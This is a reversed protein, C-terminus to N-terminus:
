SMGLVLDVVFCGRVHPHASDRCHNLVADSNCGADQLADALIPMASFERSEYMQRALTQATDTRWEPNFKVPRYPDGAVDRLLPVSHVGRPVPPVLNAPWGLSRTLEALVSFRRATLRIHEDAGEPKAFGVRALEEEYRALEAAPLQWPPQHRARVESLWATNWIRNGLGLLPTRWDSQDGLADIRREAYEVVSRCVRPLDDWAQRCLAVVYLVVKRGREPHAGRDTLKMHLFSMM